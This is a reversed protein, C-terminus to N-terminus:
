IVRRDQRLDYNDIGWINGKTNWNAQQEQLCPEIDPCNHCPGLEGDPDRSTMYFHEFIKCPQYKGM